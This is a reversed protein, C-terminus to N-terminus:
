LRRRLSRAQRTLKMNANIAQVHLVLEGFGTSLGHMQPASLLTWMGSNHKCCKVVPTTSVAPIKAM